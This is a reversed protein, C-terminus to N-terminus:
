VCNKKSFSIPTSVYFELTYCRPLNAKSSPSLDRKTNTPCERERERRILGKWKKHHWVNVIYWFVSEVGRESGSYVGQPPIHPGKTRSESECDDRTSKTINELSNSLKASNHIWCHYTLTASLLRSSKMLVDAATHLTNLKGNSWNEYINWEDSSDLDVFTWMLIQVRRSISCSSIEENESEGEGIDYDFAYLSGKLQCISKTTPSVCLVVPNQLFIIKRSKSKKHQNSCSLPFYITSEKRESFM